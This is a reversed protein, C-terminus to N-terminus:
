RDIEFRPDLCVGAESLVFYKHEGAAADEPVNIIIKHKEAPDVNSAVLWGNAANEPLTIVGGNKQPAPTINIRVEDGPQASVCEPNAASGGSKNLNINVVAAKPCAGSKAQTQCGEIVGMAPVPTAPPSAGCAGLLLMGPLVALLTKNM